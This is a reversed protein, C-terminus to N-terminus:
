FSFSNDLCWGGKAGPVKEWVQSVLGPEVETMDGEEEEFKEIAVGGVGPRNWREGEAGFEAEKWFACM